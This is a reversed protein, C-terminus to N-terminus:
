NANSCVSVDNLNRKLRKLILKEVQYLYNEDCDSDLVEPAERVASLKQTENLLIEDVVNNIIANNELHRNIKKGQIPHNGHDNTPKSNAYKTVFDGM